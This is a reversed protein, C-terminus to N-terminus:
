KIKKINKDRVHKIPFFEDNFTTTTLHSVDERMKDINSEIYKGKFPGYGVLFHKGDSYAMDVKECIFIM